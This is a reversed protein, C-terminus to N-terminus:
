FWVWLEYYGAATSWLVKDSQVLSALLAVRQLNNFRQGLFVPSSTTNNKTLLFVFFESERKPAIISNPKRLIHRIRCIESPTIWRPRRGEAETSLVRRSRSFKGYEVFALNLLHKFLITDGLFFAFIPYFHSFKRLALIWYSCTRETIVGFM